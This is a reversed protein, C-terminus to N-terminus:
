NKRIVGTVLVLLSLIVIVPITYLLPLVSSGAGLDQIVERPGCIYQPVLDIPNGNYTIALKYSGTPGINVTDVDETVETLTYKIESDILAANFVVKSDSGNSCWFFKTNNAGVSIIDKASDTYLAKTGTCIVRDGNLDSYVTYSSPFVYSAQVANADSITIGSALVDITLSSVETTVGNWSSPSLAVYALADTLGRINYGYTPSLILIANDTMIYAGNDGTNLDIGNVSWTTGSKTMTIHLNANTSYTAYNVGISEPGNNYTDVFESKADDLSPVLVTACLILGITVSIILTVLKNNM